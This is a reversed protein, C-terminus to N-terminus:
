RSGGGGSRDSLKETEGSVVPSKDFIILFSRLCRQLVGIRRYGFKRFVKLSVVSAESWATPAINVCSFSPTSIGTAYKELVIFAQSCFYALACFSHGATNYATIFKRGYRYPQSNM